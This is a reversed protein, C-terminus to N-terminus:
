IMNSRESSSTILTMCSNRTHAANADWGRGDLDREVPYYQPRTEQSALHGDGHQGYESPRTEEAQSGRSPLALSSADAPLPAPHSTDAGPTTPSAQAAVLSAVYERKTEAEEESDSDPAPSRPPPDTARQKGQARGSGAAM